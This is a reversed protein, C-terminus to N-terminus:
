ADLSVGGEEQDEDGPSRNEDIRCLAHFGCRRCTEAGKRPDVEARGELYDQALQEICHRWDDLMALTLPNKVLPDSSKLGPFLTETPHTFLGAYKAQSARVTAFALGGIPEPQDMAFTAYLPVQVDGPRPTRWESPSIDGTKYDIVFVSGDNLRDLRDIRLNLPLGAVSVPRPVEVDIVTFPVRITEYRLWEVILETLRIRELELYRPPMWDEVKGKLVDPVLRHVHSAVFTELEPLRKELDDSDSLGNPPGSWISRLVAHVLEGRQMPNLFPQGANWDQAGLRYTAFAKFPCQSQTTLIGAGGASERATFPIRATDRFSLTQDQLWGSHRESLMTQLPAIKLAIRSPRAEVSEKRRAFSFQVIPASAMLRTTMADALTWEQLADAHPMGTDRQLQLPLLPHARGASPWSDEDVGLFWVADAHLGAAESPGTILAPADESETSFLTQTMARSLAALFARWSIRTGSFGLSACTDLAEDFRRMAQFEASTFDRGGQPRMDRLLASIWESWESPPRSMNPFDASCRQAAQMRKTWESPLPSNRSAMQIWQALSWHPRQLGADRLSRMAAQLALREERTQAAFGTALLWDLASEELPELLWRLMLLHAKPAPSEDLPVGLSFEFATSSTGPMHELFAREIEGRREAVDQSVILVSRAPDDRLFQSCWSACVELEQLPDSASWYHVKRAPEGPDAFRWAGWARLFAEQTPQLRDFGVLLLPSRPTIDATLRPLMELPMRGPSIGNHTRCVIEFATMWGSFIAKDLTWTKRASPDLHRPSYNCLLAYAQMAQQALRHRAEPLLATLSSQDEVIGAWLHEEQARNLVIQDDLGCETWTRSILATWDMIDPTPWACMGETLRQRSFANRLNRAARDSATVITGGDRLWADYAPSLPCSM